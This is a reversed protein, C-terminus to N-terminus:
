DKTQYSLQLTLFKETKIHRLICNGNRKRGKDRYWNSGRAARGFAQYLERLTKPEGIYVIMWVDKKNVGMGFASTAVLVEIENRQFKNLVTQKNTTDGHYTEVRRGKSAIYEAYQRCDKKFFTYILLPAHRDKEKWNKWKNHNFFEDLTEDIIQEWNQENDIISYVPDKRIDKSRIM